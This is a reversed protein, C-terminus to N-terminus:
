IYDQVKNRFERITNFYNFSNFIASGIMFTDAGAKATKTINDLNIGGDIALRISLNNRDIWNRAEIIKQLVNPIFAQGGFGPEVSMIIILDIKQKYLTPLLALSTSPSFALGVKLGYNQILQISQEINETAEPHFTIHSAGANAFKSILNDVPKTQLHVDIPAKIQHKRFAQCLQPTFGLNDVFHNDMVDFHIWDAGATLINKVEEGLKTRDAALISPALICQQKM